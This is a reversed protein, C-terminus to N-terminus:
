LALTSHAHPPPPPLEAIALALSYLSSNYKNSASLHIIFGAARLLFGYYTDTLYEM